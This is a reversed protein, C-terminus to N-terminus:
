LSIPHQLPLRLLVPKWSYEGSKDVNFVVMGIDVTGTMRRGGFKTGYGQLAPTTLALWDAGGAYNFYHVHSRILIDAKPYEGREAWLMNWLKESAIATHRGHPVSSRGCHHRYNFITGNVSLNDEGGIKEAKVERAVADEWDEFKGTHYPTGYSMLIKGAGIYKIAAVAMEVQDNRDPHTLETGGSAEGRGDIADGNFILLDIKGMHDVKDKFWSWMIRRMDWVSGGQEPRMDRDFAPPTLGLEHGCHTDSIVLVRKRRRGAM